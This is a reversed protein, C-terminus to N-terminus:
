RRAPRPQLVGGSQGAKDVAGVTLAEDAWGPSSITTDAPGLNGAAIVILMGSSKSISDVAQILPDPTGDHPAQIGLSMNAVDAGQAAAWELGAIIQDFSGSGGSNLVKANILSAGPAVGKRVTPAGEGTGAVISAVHTGHGFHDTTDSDDSFNQAAIVKGDDLDPHTTDIGTDLVAVKVGTGDFGAAWAQPAGVQPVSEALTAKARRNLWIKHVSPSVASLNAEDGSSGAVSSWFAGAQGKNEQMSTANISPLNFRPTAGAPPAAAHLGQEYQVILPLTASQNDDYGNAVLASINFLEQDLKGAALMPMAQAPIVYLDNNVKRSAYSPALGGAPPKITATADGNALTQLEVVDGTLLTVTHRSVTTPLRPQGTPRQGPHGRCANHRRRLRAGRHTIQLTEENCSTSM